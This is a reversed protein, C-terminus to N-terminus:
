SLWPFPFSARYQLLCEVDLVGLWYSSLRVQCCPFWTKNTSCQRTRSASSGDGPKSNNTPLDASVCVGQMTELRLLCTGFGCILPPLIRSPPKNLNNATDSARQAYCYGRFFLMSFAAALCAYSCAVRFPEFTAIPNEIPGPSKLNQHAFSSSLELRASLM